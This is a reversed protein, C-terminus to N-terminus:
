IMLEFYPGIQTLLSEISDKLHPTARVVPIIVSTVPKIGRRSFDLNNEAYIELPKKPNDILMKHVADRLTKEIELGKGILNNTYDPDNGLDILWECDKRWKHTVYKWKETRVCWLNSENPSPPIDYAAGKERFVMVPEYIGGLMLPLLSRGQAGMPGTNIIDLITPAIDIASVLKNIHCPTIDKTIFSCFTLNSIEEHRPGYQREYEVYPTDLTVGHDTSIILLDDEDVKIKQLLQELSESIQTINYEYKESPWSKGLKCNLDHLLVMHLYAFKPGERQNYQHIFEDRKLCDMAPNTNEIIKGVRYGSSEWVDFGSKPVVQPTVADCYFSTHYGGRKLFDTLSLVHPDLRNLAERTWGLAGNSSPYMSTFVAHMSTQTGAAASFVKSFLIGRSLVEDVFLKPQEHNGCCFLKDVRLGDLCLWVINRKKRKFDEKEKGSNLPILIQSTKATKRKQKREVFRMIEDAAHQAATGDRFSVS